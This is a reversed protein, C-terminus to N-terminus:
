WWCPSCRCSSRLASRPLCNKARGHRCSFDVAPVGGIIISTANIISTRIEFSADFIVELIGRREEPPLVANQKLRKFVNEVDIIADDVLDGIAIAMGGLSM